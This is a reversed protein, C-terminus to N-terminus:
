VAAFLRAKVGASVVQSTLQYPPRGDRRETPYLRGQLFGRGGALFGQLADDGVLQLHAPLVENILMPNVGDSLWGRACGFDAKLLRWISAGGILDSDLGSDRAKDDASADSAKSLRLAGAYGRM